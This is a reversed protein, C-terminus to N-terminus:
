ARLAQLHQAVMPNKQRLLNLIDKKEKRENKIVTELEFILAIFTDHGLDAMKLEAKM